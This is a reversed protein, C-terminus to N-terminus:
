VTKLILMDFNMRGEDLENKSEWLGIPIVNIVRIQNSSLRPM